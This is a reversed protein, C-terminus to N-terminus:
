KVEVAIETLKGATDFSSEQWTAPGFVGRANNSFGYQETPMGLANRDLRGDKNEDHFVAVAYRGHPVNAIKWLHEGTDGELVTAYAATKIDLWEAESKYIAIRLQGNAANLGTVRVILTGTGAPRATAPAEPRRDPSQTSAPLELLGPVKVGKPAFRGGLAVGGALPAYLEIAIQSVPLQVRDVASTAAPTISAIALIPGSNDAIGALPLRGSSSQPAFTRMAQQHVDSYFWNLAAKKDEFWAFIVQKGSAMSGAEVGLCGPTRQLAGVLDPFQRPSTQALLGVGSPGFVVLALLAIAALERLHTNRM